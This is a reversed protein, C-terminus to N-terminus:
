KVPKIGFKRYLKGTRNAMNQSPRESGYLLLKRAM